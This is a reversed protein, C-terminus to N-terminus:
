GAPARDSRGSRRNNEREITITRPQQGRMVSFSVYPDRFGVLAMVFDSTNHVPHKDVATVIDGCMLGARAALGSVDAVLV